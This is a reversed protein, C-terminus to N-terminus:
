NFNIFKNFSRGTPTRVHILGKDKLNQSLPTKYHFRNHNDVDEKRCQASPLIDAIPQVVLVNNELFQTKVDIIRMCGEVFHPYTGKLSLTFATANENELIEAQDVPAYIYNDQNNTNAAEITLQDSAESNVVSEIKYEGADLFGLEIIELFPSLIEPCPKQDRVYSEVQVSIKKNRLDIQADSRSLRYCGNPLYGWVALEVHDNTDYGSRISLIGEIPLSERYTNKAPFAATNLLLLLSLLKKM